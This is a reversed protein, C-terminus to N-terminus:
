ERINLINFWNMKMIFRYIIVQSIFVFIYMILGAEILRIGRIVVPMRYMETSFAASIYYCYFIGAILGLFIGITNLLFSEGFFIKAVQLKSFGLVRLSAIDRERESLSILATNIISGVAIIGAFGIMMM